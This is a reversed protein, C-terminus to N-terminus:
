RNLAFLWLLLWFSCDGCFSFYSATFVGLSYFFASLSIFFYLGGRLSENLTSLNKLPCNLNLTGISNYRESDFLSMRHVSSWNWLTSMVFPNLKILKTSAANKM